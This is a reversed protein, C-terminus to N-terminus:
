SRAPSDWDQLSPDLGALLDTISASLSDAREEVEDISRRASDAQRMMSEHADSHKPDSEKSALPKTRSDESPEVPASEEKRPTEDPIWESSIVESVKETPTEASGEPLWESVQM